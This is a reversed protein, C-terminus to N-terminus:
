NNNDYKIAFMLAPRIWMSVKLPSLALEYAEADRLDTELLKNNLEIIEKNFLRYTYKDLEIGNQDAVVTEKTIINSYKQNQHCYAIGRQIDFLRSFFLKNEEYECKESITALLDMDKKLDEFYKESDVKWATSDTPVSYLYFCNTNNKNTVVCYPIIYANKINKGLEYREEVIYNNTFSKDNSRMPYIAFEAINLAVLITIITFIRRKWNTIFIFVPAFWLYLDLIVHIINQLFLIHYDGTMEYAEGFILRIPFLLFLCYCSYIVINEGRGDKNTKFIYFGIFLVAVILILSVIQTLLIFLNAITYGKFGLIICVFIAFYTLFQSTKNKSSLRNYKNWFRRPRFYFDKLATFHQTLNWEGIISFLEKVDSLWSM